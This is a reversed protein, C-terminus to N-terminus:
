ASATDAGAESQEGGLAMASSRTIGHRKGHKDVLSPSEGFPWEIHGRDRLVQEAFAREYERYWAAFNGCCGQARISWRGNTRRVEFGAM